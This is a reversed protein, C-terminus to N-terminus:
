TKEGEVTGELAAALLGSKRLIHGICIGRKRKTVCLYTRGEKMKELVDEGSIKDVYRIGETRRRIRIEM